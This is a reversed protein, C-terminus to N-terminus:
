EVSVTPGRRKALGLGRRQRPGVSEGSATGRPVLMKPGAASPPLPGVVTLHPSAGSSMTQSSQVRRAQKWGGPWEKDM